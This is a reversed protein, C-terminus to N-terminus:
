THAANMQMKFDPITTSNLIKATTFAWPPILLQVTAFCQIFSPTSLDCHSQLKFGSVCQCRGSYRAKNHRSVCKCM